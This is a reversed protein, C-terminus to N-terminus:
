RCYLHPAMSMLLPSQGDMQLYFEMALAYEDIRMQESGVVTEPCFGYQIREQTMVNLCQRLREYNYDLIANDLHCRRGLDEYLQQYVYVFFPRVSIDASQDILTFPQHFEHYTRRRQQETTLERRPVNPLLLHDRSVSGFRDFTPYAALLCLRNLPPNGPVLPQILQEHDEKEEATSLQWLDQCFDVPRSRRM